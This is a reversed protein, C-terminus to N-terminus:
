KKDNSAIYKNMMDEIVTSYKVENEDCVLRFEDAVEVKISIAMQINNVRTKSM